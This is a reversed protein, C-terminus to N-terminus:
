LHGMRQLSGKLAERVGPGPDYEKRPPMKENGVEQLGHDRLLERHQRRGGVVRGDVAVDRYPEIDRIVYYGAEAPRAYEGIPILKGTRPCQM